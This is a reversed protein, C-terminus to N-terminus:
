RQKARSEANRAARERPLANGTRTPTLHVITYTGIRTIIHVHVHTMPGFTSFEPIRSVGFNMRRIIGAFEKDEYKEVGTQCKRNKMRKM